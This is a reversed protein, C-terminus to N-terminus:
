TQEGYTEIFSNMLVQRSYKISKKWDVPPLKLFYKPFEHAELKLKLIKTKDESTEAASFLAVVEGFYRDPVALLEVTEEEVQLIAAIKKKLLPLSINEGGSILFDGRRGYLYLSRGRKEGLDSSQYVDANEGSAVFLCKGSYELIQQAGVNVNRYPLIEGVYNDEFSRVSYLRTAAVQSAMETLGYTYSVPLSERLVINQVEKSASAGGLLILEAERLISFFSKFNKEIKLIHTPVLSLYDISFSSEEWKNILEELSDFRLYYSGALVSRMLPMFGGVHQLPLISVVNKEEKMPYFEVSGRASWYLSKLSHPYNEKGLHNSSSFPVLCKELPTEPSFRRFLEEAALHGM